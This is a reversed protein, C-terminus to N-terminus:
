MDHVLREPANGARSHLRMVENSLEIDANKEQLERLVAAHGYRAARHAPTEGGYGVLGVVVM